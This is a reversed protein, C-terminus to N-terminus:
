GWHYVRYKSIQLKGTKPNRILRHQANAIVEAADLETLFKGTEKDHVVIVTVKNSVINKIHFADISLSNAYTTNIRYQLGM